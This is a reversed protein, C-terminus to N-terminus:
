KKKPKRQLPRAENGCSCLGHGSGLIGIFACQSQLASLEAGSLPADLFQTETIPFYGYPQAPAGVDVPNQIHTAWARLDPTPVYPSTPDCFGPYPASVIKIVGTTPVTSTLPNSTLDYDVSLTNLDNPSESCGCCEAMQQDYTFVYVMACLYGYGTPQPGYGPNDIYVTATPAYGTNANAYYNVQYVDQAVSATGLLVVALAVCLVTLTGSLTKNM